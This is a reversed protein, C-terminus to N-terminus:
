WNWKVVGETLQLINKWISVPVGVGLVSADRWFWRRPLTLFSSISYKTGIRKKLGLGRWTVLIELMLSLSQVSRVLALQFPAFSGQGLQGLPWIRGWFPLTNPPPRLGLKVRWPPVCDYGKEGDLCTVSPELSILGSPHSPAVKIM